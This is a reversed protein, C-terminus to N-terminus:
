GLYGLARLQGVVIVVKSGSKRQNFDIRYKCNVAVIAGIGILEAIYKWSTSNM